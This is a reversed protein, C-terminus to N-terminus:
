FLVRYFADLNHLNAAHTGCQGNTANEGCAQAGGTVDLALVGSALTGNTSELARFGVLPRSGVQGSYRMFTSNSATFGNARALAGQGNYGTGWLVGDVDLVALASFTQLGFGVVKDVHTQFATSPKNLASVVGTGTVGNGLQGYGNYGCMLLEHAANVIWSVGYASDMAGADLCGTYGGSMAVFINRQTSSGDGLQGYGNQGCALPAQNALDLIVSHGYYTPTSTYSAAATVQKAKGNFNVIYAANSALKVPSSQTTTSNVGCQGQGNAGWAWVFDDGDIALCHTYYELGASLQKVGVLATIKTPTTVPTTTNGQGCQGFSNNGVAYVDGTTTIFYTTRATLGGASSPLVVERIAISLNAFYDVRKAYRKHTNDGHGLCYDTNNGWSYVTGDTTLAFFSQGAQYIEVFATAPPNATDIAVRQPLYIDSGNTDGNGFYTSGNGVAMISGDAMLYAVCGLSHRSGKALKAVSRAGRSEFVSALDIGGALQIGTALYNGGTKLLSFVSTGDLVKAIRQNVRLATMAKTNEAGAEAEAQSALAAAALLMVHTSANVQAVLVDAAGDYLKLLWPNAATDVWLMGAQVYSPRAAGAHGSHVADRWSEMLAALATGSTTSPNITGFDYQSM